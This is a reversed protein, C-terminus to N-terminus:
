KHQQVIKNFIDMQREQANWQECKIANIVNAEQFDIDKRLEILEKEMKTWKKFLDKLRENEKGVEDSVNEDTEIVIANKFMVIESKELDYIKLM